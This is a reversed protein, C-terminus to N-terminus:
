LSNAYRVGAEFIPFGSGTPKERTWRPHQYFLVHDEPHPMLGFVNGQSNCVGAVGGDSGSPNDPYDAANGQKDVYSVVIQKSPVPSDSLFRGEGHAVPMYLLDKIGQTFICPSNPNPRLYVWRCEFHASQNYTLAADELLFGSKLLTQFGNCIGLVPKGDVIFRRLEEKFCYRLNLALLSGAGLDDSYSFGGPLILMAYDQLRRERCVLQNIHVIEPRGGALECAQATEYDRNTGPAHLILVPPKIM